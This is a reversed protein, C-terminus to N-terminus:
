WTFTTLTRQDTKGCGDKCDEDDVCSGALGCDTPSIVTTPCFGWLGNRTDFRCNFGSDATRPKDPDGTFYGCTSMETGTNQRKQLSTSNSKRAEM